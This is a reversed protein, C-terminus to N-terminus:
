ALNGVEIWVTWLFHRNELLVLLQHAVWLYRNARWSEEAFFSKDLVLQVVLIVVHCVVEDEGQLKIWHNRGNIYSINQSFM